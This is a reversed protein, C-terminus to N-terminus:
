GTGCDSLYEVRGSQVLQRSLWRRACLSLNSGTYIPGLHRLLWHRNSREATAGPHRRQHQRLLSRCKGCQRPRSACYRSITTPHPRPPPPLATPTPCQTRCSQSRNPHLAARLNLPHPPLSHHTHHSPENSSLLADLPAPLCCHLDIISNLIGVCHSHNTPLLVLFSLSPPLLTLYAPLDILLPYLSTTPLSALSSYFIYWCWCVAIVLVVLSYFLSVPISEADVKVVFSSAPDALTAAKPQIARTVAVVQVQDSRIQGSM